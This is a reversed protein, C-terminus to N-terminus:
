GNVIKMIKKMMMKKKLSWKIGKLYKGFNNLLLFFAGYTETIPMKNIENSTKDCFCSLINSMNSIPNSMYRTLNIYKDWSIEDISKLKLKSKPILKDINNFNINKIIEGVEMFTLEPFDEDNIDALICIMKRINDSDNTNGTIETSFKIYKETSLEDLVNVINLDKIKIM